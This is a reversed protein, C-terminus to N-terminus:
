LAEEAIIVGARTSLGAAFEAAVPLGRTWALM